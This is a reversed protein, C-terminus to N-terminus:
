KIGTIAKLIALQDEGNFDSLPMDDMDTGYVFQIWIEEDDESLYAADVDVIREYEDGNTYDYTTISVPTDKFSMADGYEYNGQSDSRDEKIEKRALEEMTEIDVQDDSIELCDIDTKDLCFHQIAGYQAKENAKRQAEELSSALINFDASYERRVQFKYIKDAM